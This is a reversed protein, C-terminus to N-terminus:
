NEQGLSLGKELYKKKCAFVREHSKCAVRYWGRICTVGICAREVPHQTCGRHLDGEVPAQICFGHLDGKEPPQADHKHLGMDSPTAYLWM